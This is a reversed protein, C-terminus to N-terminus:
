GRRPESSQFFFSRAEDVGQWERDWIRALARLEREEQALIADQAADFATTEEAFAVPGAGDPPLWRGAGDFEFGGQQFRAGNEAGWIEGYPQHRNFRPINM